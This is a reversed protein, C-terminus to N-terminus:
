PAYASDILPQPSNYFASDLMQGLTTDPNRKLYARIIRHGIFSGLRGPSDPHLLSTHPGRITLRRGIQPDTAYLMQRQVLTHWADAENADAWDLQANDYGLATAEDTDSIRMVAEAVVGDYLMRSLATADPAPTYPFASSVIAEAIESAAFRPQKTARQYAEFYGYGPYDSGLYHNLGLLLTSDSLFMSQRYTSVFAYIRPWQLGPLQSHARLKMAGLVTELSDLKPLRSAIDPMFTAMGRGGAYSSLISDTDAVTRAGPAIATVLARVAEGYRHRTSARVASDAEHYSLLASDLREIKQPPAPIARGSKGCGVACAVLAAIIFIHYAPKM